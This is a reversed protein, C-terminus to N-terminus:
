NLDRLRLKAVRWPPFDRDLLLYLFRGGGLVKSDEPLPIDRYLKTGTHRDYVDLSVHLPWFPPFAREPDFRGQTVVLHPGIVDLRQIAEFSALLEPLSTGYSGLDMFAGLEFVTIPRFSPSPAGISGVTDGAANLITVPYRLGSMVYISDGSVALPYRAFGGWYPREIDAYPQEYSSWAVSTGTVRHLLPPRLRQFLADGYDTALMRVLLDPGLALVDRPTTPLSMLSDPSLSDTLFILQPHHSGAVVIRGSETEAVGNVRRFEFPGDGFRGFATELRGHDDYSRVRPLFLDAIVFGGGRREIFAGVEAISDSPDEGLELVAELEFVEELSGVVPASGTTVGPEGCAYLVPGALAVVLCAKKSVSLRRVNSARSVRRTPYTSETM